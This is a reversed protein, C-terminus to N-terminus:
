FVDVTGSPLRIGRVSRDRRAYKTMFMVEDLGADSAPLMSQYVGNFNWPVPRGTGSVQALKTHGFRMLVSVYEYGRSVKKNAYLLNWITQLLYRNTLAPLGRVMLERLKALKHQRWPSAYCIYIRMLPQDNMIEVGEVTGRTPAGKILCECPVRTKPRLFLKLHKLDLGRGTYTAIATNGAWPYRCVLSLFRAPCHRYLAM